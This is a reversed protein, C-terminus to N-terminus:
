IKEINPNIKLVLNWLDEPGDMIVPNGKDDTVENLTGDPNRREYLYFYIIDSIIKGFKLYILKDIISYFLEDYNDNNIGFNSTLVNQRIFAADLETILAVFM